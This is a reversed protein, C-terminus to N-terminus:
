SHLLDGLLNLTNYYPLISPIYHREDRSHPGLGSQGWVVGQGEPAFRASTAPLKQGIRPESGSVQRVAQLLKQLLPNQPDCAVGNESALFRLELSNASCYHEVEQRLHRVDDRPIPRIEAGLVGEAATINYVGPTGVNLFPFRAQSQWGDASELTLHRAFIQQLDARAQIM